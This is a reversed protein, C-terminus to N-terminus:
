CTALNSNPGWGELELPLRTNVFFLNCLGNWTTTPSSRVDGRSAIGGHSKKEQVGLLSAGAPTQMNLIAGGEVVSEEPDWAMPHELFAGIHADSNCNGVGLLLM